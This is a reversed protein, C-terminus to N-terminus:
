CMFVHAYQGGCSSRTYNEDTRGALMAIDVKTSNVSFNGQM